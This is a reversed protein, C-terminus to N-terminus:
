WATRPLFLLVQLSGVEANRILHYRPTMVQELDTFPLKLLDEMLGTEQCVKYTHTLLAEVNVSTSHQRLFTWAEVMYRFGANLM